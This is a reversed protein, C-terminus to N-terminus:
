IRGNKVKANMNEHSELLEELRRGHHVVLKTDEVVGMM